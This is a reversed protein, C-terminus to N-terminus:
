IRAIHYILNLVSYLFVNKYNSYLIEETRQARINRMSRSRSTNRSLNAGKANQHCLVTYFLYPISFLFYIYSYSEFNLEDEGIYEYM